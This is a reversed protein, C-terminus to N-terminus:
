TIPLPPSIHPMIEYMPYIKLKGRRHFTIYPLKYPILRTIAKMDGAYLWVHWTDGQPDSKWFNLIEDDTWDYSVRRALIFFEPTNFVYGTQLHAEIVTALPTDPAHALHWRAATEFPTM